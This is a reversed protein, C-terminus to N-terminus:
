EWGPILGSWKKIANYSDKDVLVMKITPHYKRMRKLKTASKSDMWGKVEHYEITGANLTVKFDPTYSRVGRRIAEFWFTDVEYEWSKIESRAQLWVLYWAYNHEWMSRMFYRKDEHDWWGSKCRSYANSKDNYFTGEQHLKTNRDSIRQRNEDSNLKSAPNAWAKKYAVSMRRKTEPSHKKGTMGRPHDNGWKRAM